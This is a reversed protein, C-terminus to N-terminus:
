WGRPRGKLAARIKQKQEEKMAVGSNPGPKGLKATRMKVSFEAGMKVGKNWAPKGKKAASLNPFKRGRKSLNGLRINERAAPSLQRGKKATPPKEGGNSLNRLCGTGQDIRGYHAILFVEAAYADSETPHEQILIRNRESPRVFRRKYPFLARNRCGKGVYYPTGDERLWLYTYFINM